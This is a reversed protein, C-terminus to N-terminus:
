RQAEIQIRKGCYPCFTFENDSPPDGFGFTSECSTHWDDVDDQVWWCVNPQSQQVAGILERGRLLRDFKDSLDTSM